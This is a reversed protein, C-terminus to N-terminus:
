AELAGERLWLSQREPDWYYDGERLRDAITQILTPLDRYVPSRAAPTLWVKVVRGPDVGGCNVVHYHGGLGFVPFWEARWLQDEPALRDYGEVGRLMALSAMAQRYTSISADLSEFGTFPAVLLADARGVHTEWAIQDIGDHWEYLELLEDLPALGLGAIRAATQERRLGPRLFSRLPSGAADHAALLNELDEKM